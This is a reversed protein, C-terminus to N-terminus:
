WFGIYDNQVPNPNWFTWRQHMDRQKRWQVSGDQLGVNGGESGLAAPNSGTNADTDHRPGNGSHPAVTFNGTQGDLKDIGYSIIDSALVKYPTLPESSKKPSDWPWPISPGYNGDRSRTDVETSVSWLCFYGVRVRDSNFLFWSGMKAFNPCTLCNTTVRGITTFYDYAATPLWVAHTNHIATVNTNWVASPFNDANDGAYMIATLGIQKMNSKCVARHGKEKARSLAPLLMAALIAIIAIVVLLEILTFGRRRKRALEGKIGRTPPIGILADRECM